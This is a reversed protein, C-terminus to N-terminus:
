HSFRLAAARFHNHHRARSKGLERMQEGVHKARGVGFMVTPSHCSFDFSTQM